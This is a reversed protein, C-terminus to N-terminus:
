DQPEKKQRVGRVTKSKATDPTKLARAIAINTRVLRDVTNAADLNSSVSLDDNLAYQLAYRVANRLQLLHEELVDGSKADGEPVIWSHLDPGQLLQELFAKRQAKREAREKEERQYEEEAERKSRWYIENMSQESMQRKRSNSRANDPRNLPM